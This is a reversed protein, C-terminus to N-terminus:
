KYQNIIYNAREDDIESFCLPCTKQVLLIEKYKISLNSVLEQNKSLSDKWKNKTNINNINISKLRILRDLHKIKINLINFIDNSLKVDELRKLYRRGIYLFSAM